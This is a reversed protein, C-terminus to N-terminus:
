RLMIIDCPRGVLNVFKFTEVEEESIFCRAKHINSIWYVSKILGITKIETFYWDRTHRKRIVYEHIPFNVESLIYRYNSFM